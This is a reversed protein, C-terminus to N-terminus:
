IYNTLLSVRKGEEAHAIEKFLVFLGWILKKYCATGKMEVLQILSNITRIMKMFVLVLDMSLSVLLVKYRTIKPFWIM